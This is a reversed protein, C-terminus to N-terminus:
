PRRGRCDTRPKPNKRLRGAWVGSLSARDQSATKPSEALEPEGVQLASHEDKSELRATDDPSSRVGSVTDEDPEGTATKQGVEMTSAVHNDALDESMDIDASAPTEPM